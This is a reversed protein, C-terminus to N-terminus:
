EHIPDINEPLDGFAVKVMRVPKQPKQSRWDMASIDGKMPAFDERALVYVYGVSRKAADLAQKSAEFHPQGDAVGFGTSDRHVLSRFIAIDAYPTAVVSPAGHEKRVKDMWNYAQRVELENIDSVPSGHFVYKGMAELEHLLKRGEGKEPSSEKVADKQM